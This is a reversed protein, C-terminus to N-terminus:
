NLSQVVMLLYLSTEIKSPTLCNKLQNYTTVELCQSQSYHPQIERSISEYYAKGGGAQLHANSPTTHVVYLNANRALTSGDRGKCSIKSSRLGFDNHRKPSTGNLRLGATKGSVGCSVANKSEWHLTAIKGKEVVQPEYWVEVELESAVAKSSLLAISSILLLNKM